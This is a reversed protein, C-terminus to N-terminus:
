LLLLVYSLIGQSYLYLYVSYYHFSTYLYRPSIFTTSIVLAQINCYQYYVEDFKMIIHLCKKRRRRNSCNELCNYPYSCLMYKILILVYTLICCPLQSKLIGILAWLQAFQCSCIQHFCLSIILIDILIQHIVGFSIREINM